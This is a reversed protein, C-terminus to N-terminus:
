KRGEMWVAVMALVFCFAFFALVLGLAWSSDPCASM